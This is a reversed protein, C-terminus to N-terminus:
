SKKVEGTEYSPPNTPKTLNHKKKVIL